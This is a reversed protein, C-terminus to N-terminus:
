KLKIDFIEKRGLGRVIKMMVAGAPATKKLKLSYDDIGCISPHQYYEINQMGDMGVTKTNTNHLHGTLLM